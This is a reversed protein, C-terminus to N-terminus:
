VGANKDGRMSGSVKDNPQLHEPRSSLMPIPMRLVLDKWDKIFTPAYPASYPIGFSKLNVIHINVMIYVLIIGYLGLFAAAVMFGFRILRFSIAVSYMPITFSAVATLAVVIVMIPSVVGASVAAEGIVLGGVIGITQGITKPLRAGAERLLEMTIAMLVAEVFAPFPVGQRTAAISFALQSPIMGQHYSVLAIYLAPLFMTIFAAFYRLGRILTGILWREYYDEPSQFAGGITSPAILVFPSGDLIIVFKGKTLAAAAKDPRESNDMQPIPSLFSDEIWQEIYGSELAADTDISALRRNVEDLIQPHIIGAIYAVVIKKKSRRGVDHVKFHLNPDRIHRRILMINTSLNEVFGDRPGRILSESVPEQIARSEWKKTDLLLVRNVGDLLFVSSGSLLELMLEDMTAVNKVGSISILEEHILAMLNDLNTPLEQKREIEGLNKLVSQEIQISNSLGDLYVIACKHNALRLDRIVLDMPSDLMKKINDINEKLTKTLNTNFNESTRNKQKKRKIVRRAM